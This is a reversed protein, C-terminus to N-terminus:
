EKKEKKNKEPQEIEDKEEDTKEKDSKEQNEKEGQNSNQISLLIVAAIILIAGIVMQGTVAENLLLYGVVLSTVPELTSLISATGPGVIQIGIAFTVLPIVTSILALLAVRIVAQAPMVLSLKGTVLQTIGNGLWSIISVYFILVTSNIGELVPNAVGLVYIAFVVASLLALIIGRIDLSVEGTIGIIMFVGIFSLILALAKIPTIKEKYLFYAAITVLAPYIFHITTAVGASVYNYSLFLTLSTLYYGILGIIVIFKIQEKTIKIPKKTAVNFIGLMIFAFLFRYFLVNYTNGGAEYALKAIVPMLGFGISSIVVCLTGYLKSM